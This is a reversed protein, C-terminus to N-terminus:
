SKIRKGRAICGNGFGRLSYVSGDNLIARMYYYRSGQWSRVGFFIAERSSIVTYTGIPNGHWDGLVGDKRPYAFIYQDTVIAGGSEFKRGEHEITCDREVYEM